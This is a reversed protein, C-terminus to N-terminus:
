PGEVPQGRQGTHEKGLEQSEAPEQSVLAMVESGEMLEMMKWAANSPRPKFPLRQLRVLWQLEFGSEM